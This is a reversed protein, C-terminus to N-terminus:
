YLGPHIHAIPKLALSGVYLFIFLLYGLPVLKSTYGRAAPCFTCSCGSSIARLGFITNHIKSCSFLSGPSPPEADCGCDCDDFGTLGVNPWTAVPAPTWMAACAKPKCVPLHSRM